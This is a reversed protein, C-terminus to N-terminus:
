IPPIQAVTHSHIQGMNHADHIVQQPLLLKEPGGAHGLRQIRQPSGSLQRHIPRSCLILGPLLIETVRPFHPIQCFAQHCCRWSYDRDATQKTCSAIRTKTSYTINFWERQGSKRKKSQM